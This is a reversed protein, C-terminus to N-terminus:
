SSPNLHRKIINILKSRTNSQIITQEILRVYNYPTKKLLNPHFRNYIILDDSLTNEISQVSIKKDIRHTKISSLKRENNIYIIKTKDNFKSNKDKTNFLANKTKIIKNGNFIWYRGIDLWIGKDGIADIKLGGIGRNIEPQFLNLFHRYDSSEISFHISDINTYCILASKISHIKELTKLLKIRARSIIISSYMHISNSNRYNPSYLIYSDNNESILRFKKNNKLNNIFNDKYQKDKICISYENNLFEELERHSNFYSVLNPCGSAASCAHNIWLKQLLESYKKNNIKTRKNFKKLSFDLLPHPKKNKFPIFTLININAFHNKLFELEEKITMVEITLDDTFAFSNSKLQNVYEFYHYNKIFNNKPSSLRVKYLGDQMSSSYPIGNYNIVENLNSPEPFPTLMCSLYMSNFDICVIKKNNRGEYGVFVEQYGKHSCFYFINDLSTKSIVNKIIKNTLKHNAQKHFSEMGFGLSLVFSITKNLNRYQLDTDSLYKINTLFPFDRELILLNLPLQCKSTLILDREKRTLIVYTINDNFVFESSIKYKNGQIIFVDNGVSLKHFNLKTSVRPLKLSIPSSKTPNPIKDDFRSISLFDM